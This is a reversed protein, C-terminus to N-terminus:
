PLIEGKKKCQKIGHASINWNFVVLMRKRQAACTKGGVLGNKGDSVVDAARRAAIFPRVDRGVEVGEQSSGRNM